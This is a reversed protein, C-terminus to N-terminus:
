VGLSYLYSLSNNSKAVAADMASYTKRLRTEMRDLRAQERDVTDQLTKIRSDFAQKRNAVLGDGVATFGKLMDGMVDMLGAKSDTGALVKSFDEPHDALAKNMKTEDLRITGDSNLRIGIDALTDLAGGHGARNLIRAGLGSSVARLASDGSLEANSAKISGYGAVKHVKNVVANYKQVFDKLSTGMKTPDSAVKVKFSETTEASLNFTLGEIAGSITNTKSKVPIGDILIQADAAAQKQSDVADFGFGLSTSMDEMTFAGAEGGESGSLQLRYQSGDFFVNAKIKAGSGNIKAAVEDLSDTAEVNIDYNTGGQALRLTGTKNLDATRSNFTTSYNRQEKLLSVVRVDYSAARVNGSTTLTLAEPKASTGSFSALETATDMSDVVSKLDSLLGGISSLDSVAARSASIRSNAADVGGSDAQVLAKVIADIDIGSGLGSFTISGM